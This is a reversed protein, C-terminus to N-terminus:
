KIARANKIMDKTQCKMEPYVGDFLKKKMTQIPKANVPLKYNSFLGNSPNGLSEFLKKWLSTAKNEAPYYKCAVNTALVIENLKSRMDEYEM